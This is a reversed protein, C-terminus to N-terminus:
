KGRISLDFTSKIIPGAIEQVMESNLDSEGDVVVVHPIEDDLLPEDNALQHALIEVGADSADKGQRARELVRMRMTDPDARVDFIIFPADLEVALSQFLRRQWHRLFAADVIVPIGAEVIKRALTLLRDYLARTIGPDYLGTEPSAGAGSAPPLGHMRKREVDSRLRIAGVAELLLGAFTSKGSGAYGHTIMIAKRQPALYRAAFDLYSKALVRSASGEKSEAPFQRARLFAVKSRVLARYTQYYRLVALGEYDGSIELYRNVLRAALDPRDRFQLDMAIFALDNMVDIWRLSENFEICDFVQVRGDITLINGCHLDGHCERIFGRAKRQVFMARLSRQLTEGGAKLETLERREDEGNVVTDIQALNESACAQLTDPAGWLTDGPAISANSHLESIMKALGDVEDAGLIGNEIRREWLAEQQFARMKVAYEIPDGPGDIVPHTSTGTIRIVGLYLDSAMRRNLRLEEECYFHRAELTSFDVFDFRLAKKLKYASEGAVLVWSLHTEFVQVCAAEQGLLRGLASILNAQISSSEQNLM